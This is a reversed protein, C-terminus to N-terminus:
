LQSYTVSVAILALKCRSKFGWKQCAHVIVPEPNQKVFYCPM